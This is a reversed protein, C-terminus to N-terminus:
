LWWHFKNPMVADSLWCQIKECYKLLKTTVRSACHLVFQFQCLLFVSPGVLILKCHSFDRCLLLNFLIVATNVSLNCQMITHLADFLIWRYACRQQPLYAASVLWTIEVKRWHKVRKCRRANSSGCRSRRQSTWGFAFIRCHNQIYRGNHGMYSVRLHM